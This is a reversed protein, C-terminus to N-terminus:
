LLEDRQGLEARIFPRDHVLVRVEQSQQRGGRSSVNKLSGRPRGAVADAVAESEQRLAGPDIPCNEDASYATFWGDVDRQHQREQLFPREERYPVLFDEGRQHQIQSATIHQV